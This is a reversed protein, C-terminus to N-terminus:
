HPCPIGLAPITEKFGAIGDVKLGSITQFNRVADPGEFKRDKLAKVVALGMRCNEDMERWDWLCQIPERLTTDIQDQLSRKYMQLSPRILWQAVGARAAIAPYQSQDRSWKLMNLSAGDPSGEVNAGYTQPYRDASALRGFELTPASPHTWKTKEGPKKPLYLPAWWPADTLLQPADPRVKLTEEVVYQALTRQGDWAIEWNVMGGSGLGRTTGHKSEWRGKCFDVASLCDRLATVAAPGTPTGGFDFGLGPYVRIERDIFPQTNSAKRCWPPAERAVQVIIGKIGLAAMADATKTPDLKRLDGWWWVYSGPESLVM